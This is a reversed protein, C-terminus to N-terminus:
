SSNASRMFTGSPVIFLQILRAISLNFLQRSFHAVDVVVAIQGAVFQEGGFVCEAHQGARVAGGRLPAHRAVASKRSQDHRPFLPKRRPRGLNGLHRRGGAQPIADSGLKRSLRWLARPKPVAECEPAAEADGTRERCSAQGHKDIEAGDSLLWRQDRGDFAAAARQEDRRDVRLPVRNRDDRSSKDRVWRADGLEPQDSRIALRERDTRQARIAGHHDRQRRRKGGFGFAVRRESHRELRRAARGVVPRRAVRNALANECIQSCRTRPADSADSGGYSAIDGSHPSLLCLLPTAAMFRKVATRRAPKAAVAIAAPALPTAGVKASSIVLITPPAAIYGDFFM